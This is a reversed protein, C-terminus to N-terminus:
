TDKYGWQRCAVSAYYTGLLHIHICSSLFSIKKSVELFVDINKRGEKKRQGVQELFM